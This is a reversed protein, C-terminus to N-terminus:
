KNLTEALPPYLSSTQPFDKRPATSTRRQADLAVTVCRMPERRQMVRSEKLILCRFDSHEAGRKNAYKSPGRIRLSGTTIYDFRAMKHAFPWRRCIPMGSACISSIM